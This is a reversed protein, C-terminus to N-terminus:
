TAGFTTATTVLAANDYQWLPFFFHVLGSLVGDMIKELECRVVCLKWRSTEAYDILFLQSMSIQVVLVVPYRIVRFRRRASTTQARSPQLHNFDSECAVAHVRLESFISCRLRSAAALM